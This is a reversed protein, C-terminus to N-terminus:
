PEPHGTAVCRSVVHYDALSLLWNEAAASRFRTIHVERSAAFRIHSLLGPDLKTVVKRKYKEKALERLRLADSVVLWVV